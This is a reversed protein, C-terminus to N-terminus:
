EVPEGLGRLLEYSFIGTDHGDSFAISYAYTGVPKMGHIELPQAEETPIIPLMSSPQAQEAPQNRKERCSACPCHDRLERYAYRRTQGDSWQILLQAGETKELSTPYVNM